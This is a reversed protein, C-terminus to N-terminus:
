RSGGRRECKNMLDGDEHLTTANMPRKSGSFLGPTVFFTILFLAKQNKLTTSRYTNAIVFQHVGLM